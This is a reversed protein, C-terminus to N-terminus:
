FGIPGFKFTQVAKFEGVLLLEVESNSVVSGIVKFDCVLFVLNLTSVEALTLVPM